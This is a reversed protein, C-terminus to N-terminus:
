NATAPLDLASSEGRALREVGVCGIMAANDTCYRLPPLALQLSHETAWAQARIRLRSNASVGGVIAVRSPKLLETAQTLKYLLVDVVAEQFSACLDHQRAKKEESSMTELLRAASAKLGSFSFEYNQKKMLARPLKFAQRDGQRALRDVQVGGPFPLGMLHAFKDFAEGAADDLSRGILCIKNLSKVHYMHTHGGSVVLALYPAKFGPPPTHQADRLFISWLHGELHDVGIFKKNQAAALTKATVLGVILSGVLGPRSTVALADMDAWGLKAEKLCAEVLALLHYSHNRSALEPVIGGFKEHVQNQHASAMSHVWFKSDVVAVSTDDCSTEIALVKDM